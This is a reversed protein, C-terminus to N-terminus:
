PVPCPTVELNMVQQSLRRAAIECFAEEIEVLVVRHGTMKAALALTGGGAYPDVVTMDLPISKLLAVLLGLPKEAAHERAASPVTPCSLVDRRFAEQYTTRDSRAHLIFEHSHRWGRGLGGRGKDWVITMLDDFLPYLISVFVAHSVTDCFIYLGGNEGVARRACALQERFYGPMIAMAGLSKPWSKRSAYYQAPLYFPPDTLVWCASPLPLDALLFASDGNWITIGAETDEYYPKM